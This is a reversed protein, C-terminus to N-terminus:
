NTTYYRLIKCYAVSTLNYNGTNDIGSTIRNLADYIYEYDIILIQQKGNPNALIVTTYNKIGMQLIM